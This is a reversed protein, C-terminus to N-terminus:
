RAILVRGAPRAMRTAPPVTPNEPYGHGDFRLKASYGPLIGGGAVFVALDRWGHSSTPLVRVPPRTVSMNTVVRYGGIMPTIVYLDCGGSGCRDPGEAYVLVEPRGDGNLDFMAEKYRTIHLVNRIFPDAQQATASSAIILPALASLIFRSM